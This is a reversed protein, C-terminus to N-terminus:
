KRPEGSEKKAFTGTCGCQACKKPKCRGERVAGCNQCVWVAM